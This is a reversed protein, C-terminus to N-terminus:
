AGCCCACDPWLLSSTCSPKTPTAFMSGVYGNPTFGMQRPAPSQLAGLRCKEGVGDAGGARIVPTPFLTTINSQSTPPLIHRQPQSTTVIRGPRSPRSTPLACPPQTLDRALRIVVDCAAESEREWRDSTLRFPIWLLHNNLPKKKLLWLSERVWPQVPVATDRRLRSPSSGAGQLDTFLIHCKLNIERCCHRTSQIEPTESRLFDRDVKFQWGAYIHGRPRRSPKNRGSPRCPCSCKSWAAAWFWSSYYFAPWLHVSVSVIRGSHILIYPVIPPPFRSSHRVCDVLGRSICSLTVIQWPSGRFPQM